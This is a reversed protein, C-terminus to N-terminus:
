RLKIVYLDPILPIMDFGGAELAGLVEKLRKQLKFTTSIFRVDAIEQPLFPINRRKCFRDIALLTNQYRTMFQSGSQYSIKEGHQFPLVMFMRLGPPISLRKGRIEGFTVGYKLYNYMGSPHIVQDILYIDRQEGYGHGILYYNLCQTTFYGASIIVAEKNIVSLIKETKEEIATQDRMSVKPYTRLTMASLILFVLLLAVKRNRRVLAYDALRNLGIGCLLALFFYTIVMYIFIDYIGYNIVFFINGACCLLFTVAVHRLQADRVMVRAGIFVPILWVFYERVLFYLVLPVRHFFIRAVSMNFMKVNFGPNRVSKILSIIDPAIIELYPAGTYYRLILYGYQLMGITIFAGVILMIRPRVLMKRDTMWVFYAFGPLITIMLIHNGFSIAYVACAILFYRDRGTQRWTLLYYVVVALFLVALTYVEAIVAQSWLTLSTGTICATIWAPLPRVKLRSTLISFLVLCAAVACVASLLNARFALSGIAFLRTFLFNLLIYTPYGPPHPTGLIYGVYQFKATDGMYGVGPLLTLAYLFLLVVSLSVKYPLM